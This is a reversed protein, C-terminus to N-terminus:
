RGLGGSTYFESFFPYPDSALVGLTISLREYDFSKLSTTDIIIFRDFYVVRSAVLIFNKQGQSRSRGISVIEGTTM